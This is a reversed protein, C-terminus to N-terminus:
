PNSDRLTPTTQCYVGEWTVEAQFYFINSVVDFFYKITNIIETQHNQRPCVTQCKGGGRKHINSITNFKNPHHFGVGAGVGGVLTM